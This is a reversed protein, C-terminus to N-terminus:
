VDIFLSGCTCLRDVQVDKSLKYFIEKLCTRTFATNLRVMKWINSNSPLDTNAGAWRPVPLSLTLM